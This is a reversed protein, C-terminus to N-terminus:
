KKLFISKQTNVENVSLRGDVDGVLIEMLWAYELAEVAWPVEVDSYLGHGRFQLSSVTGFGAPPKKNADPTQDTTSSSDFSLQVEGVLTQVLCETHDKKLEVM